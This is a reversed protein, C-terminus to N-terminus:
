IVGGDKTIIFVSGSKNYYENGDEDMYWREGKVREWEPRRTLKGVIKHNFKKAYERITM